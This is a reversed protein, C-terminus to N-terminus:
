ISRYCNISMRYMPGGKQHVHDRVFAKIELPVHVHKRPYAKFSIKDVKLKLKIVFIRSFM